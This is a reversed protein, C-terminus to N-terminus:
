ESVTDAAKKAEEEISAIHRSIKEIQESEFYIEDRIKTIEELLLACKGLFATASDSQWSDSLLQSQSNLNNIIIKDIYAACNELNKKVSTSLSFDYSIKDNMNM